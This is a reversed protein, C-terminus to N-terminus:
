KRYFMDMVESAKPPCGPVYPIGYRKAYEKTCDGVCIREGVCTVLSEDEIRGLILNIPKYLYHKLLKLLKIPNRTATIREIARGCGSCGHGKQQWVYINGKQIPV